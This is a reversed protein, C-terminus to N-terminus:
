NITATADLYAVGLLILFLCAGFYLANFQARRTQIMWIYFGLGVQIAIITVTILDSLTM